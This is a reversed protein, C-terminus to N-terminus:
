LDLMLDGVSQDHGRNSIELQKPSTAEKRKRSGTKRGRAPLEGSLELLKPAPEAPASITTAAQGEMRDTESEAATTSIDSPEIDSRRNVNSKAIKIAPVVDQQIKPAFRIM